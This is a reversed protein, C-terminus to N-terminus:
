VTLRVDTSGFRLDKQQDLWARKAWQYKGMRPGLVKALGILLPAARSNLGRTDRHQLTQSRKIEPEREAQVRKAAADLEEGSAGDRLLPAFHNAAVIADRLAVNIGQARIPAMPHAADGLVLVGPASWEHCRGVLVNLRVPGEIEARVTVFHAALERPAVAQLEEFWDDRQARRAGKPITLAFQLRGDWSTYCAGARGDAVMMQMRCGDRLGDPAPMKFWLVDYHEQLLNLELGAKTRVLSGRGDCGFVYDAPLERSNGAERIVVGVVRDGDRMLDHIAAGAVFSFHPSASLREVLGRLLHPQSVVRVGRDGLEEMPEPVDFLLTGDIFVEWSELPRSPVEALFDRLGMQHLADVGSPMLGEGRFTRVFDPEREIVAVNVGNRVLLHALGLGAPGAGVILTNM